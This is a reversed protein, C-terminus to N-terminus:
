KRKLWGQELTAVCPPPSAGTGPPMDVLLLDLAGWEVKQLLTDIASMVMPGRWVAPADEQVAVGASHRPRSCRQRHHLECSARQKAVYWVSM